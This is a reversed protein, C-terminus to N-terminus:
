RKSGVSNTVIAVHPYKYENPNYRNTNKSKRKRGQPRKLKFEGPNNKIHEIQEENLEYTVSATNAFAFIKVASVGFVSAATRIKM